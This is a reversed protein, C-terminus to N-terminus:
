RLLGGRTVEIVWRDPGAEAVPDPLLEVARAELAEGVVPSSTAEVVLWERGAYADLAVGPLTFARAASAPRGEVLRSVEGDQQLSVVSVFREGEVVLSLSLEDGPALAARADLPQGARVRAVDVSPQGRPTFGPDPQLAVVGLAVAAIASVAALPAGWSWGRRTSSVPLPPRNSAWWTAMAALEARAPDLNASREVAAKRDASLEAGAALLELEFEDPETM